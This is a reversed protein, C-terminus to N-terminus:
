LANLLVKSKMETELWEKEPDSDATIGAGVYLWASTDFLQMCRLNVFLQSGAQSDVPGIYGSYLERDYGEERVLFELAENRPTGCVAPTPHLLELLRTALMPNTKGNLEYDFQTRLHLIPGAKITEPKGQRFDEIGQQEFCERIFRSVLEQEELEKEGWKIAPGATAVQTGALAMTSIKQGPIFQLLVEPTAGLWTGQGPLHLLSVFSETYLDCLKQWATVPEFDAPLAISKKRSLVAKKFRDKRIHHIAKRVLEEFQEKQEPEPQIEPQIAAKLGSQFDALQKELETCFRSLWLDQKTTCFRLKDNQEIAFELEAAILVSGEPDPLFRSVAFGRPTQELALPQRCVTGELQLMLNASPAGPLRYLAFPLELRQATQIIGALIERTSYGSFEEPLEQFSDERTM